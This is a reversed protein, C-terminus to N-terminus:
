KLQKKEKEADQAAFKEAMLEVLKEANVQGAMQTQARRSVLTSTMAELGRQMLYRAADVESNLSLMDRVERIQQLEPGHFRFTVRVLDNSSEVPTEKKSMKKAM